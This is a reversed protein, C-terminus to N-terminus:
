APIDTCQHYHITGVIPDEDPSGKAEAVTVAQSNRNHDNNNPVYQLCQATTPCRLLGCYGGYGLLVLRDARNRLWPLALRGNGHLNEYTDCSDTSRLV